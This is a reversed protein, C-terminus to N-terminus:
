GGSAPGARVTRMKLLRWVGGADQTWEADFLGETTFAKGDPGTARQRYIGRQVTKDGQVESTAVHSEYVDVRPRAPSRLYGLIAARGRVPPAGDSSLEGNDAFMAAASEFEARVLHRAYAALEDDRNTSATVAHRVGQVILAGCGQLAMLVLVVSGLRALRKM